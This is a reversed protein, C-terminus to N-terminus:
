RKAITNVAASLCPWSVVKLAFYNLFYLDNRSLLLMPVRCAQAQVDTDAFNLM